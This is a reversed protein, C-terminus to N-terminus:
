FESIIEGEEHRRIPDGKLLAIIMYYLYVFFILLYFGLYIMCDRLHKRIMGRNHIEAPDYVGLNGSPIKVKEYILWAVGPVNLLFLGYYQHILLIFALFTHSALKPIVWFNLKSCCTQANLYDCELDSLIIVFYVLLFLLSGTIIMSIIFVLTEPLM